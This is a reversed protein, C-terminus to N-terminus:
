PQVREGAPLGARRALCWAILTPPLTCGPQDPALGWSGDRLWFGCRVWDRAQRRQREDGIAPPGERFDNPPRVTEPAQPTNTADLRARLAWVLWRSRSPPGEKAVLKAWELRLNVDPLDVRRRATTAAEIWEESIERESIEAESLSSTFCVSTTRGRSHERELCSESTSPSTLPKNLTGRQPVATEAPPVVADRCTPRRIPRAAAHMGGGSDTRRIARLPEALRYDFGGEPRPERTVLKDRNAEALDRHASSRSWGPLSLRSLSARVYGEGDAFRIARLMARIAHPPLSEWADLDITILLM